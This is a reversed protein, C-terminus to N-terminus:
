IDILIYNGNENKMLNDGHFDAYSYKFFNYYEQFASQIHYILNKYNPYEKYFWKLRESM